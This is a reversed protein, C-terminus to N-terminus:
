LKWKCLTQETGPVMSLIDDIRVVAWLHVPTPLRHTWGGSGAMPSKLMSSGRKTEMEEDIFYPDDRLAQKPLVYVLIPVNRFLNAHGRHLSSM